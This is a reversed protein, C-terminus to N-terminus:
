LMVGSLTIMSGPATCVKTTRAMDGDAPRLSSVRWHVHWTPVPLAKSIKEGTMEAVKM